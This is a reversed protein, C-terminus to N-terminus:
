TSIDSKFRQNVQYTLQHAQGQTLAHQWPPSLFSKLNFSEPYEFTFTSLRLSQIDKVNIISTMLEQEETFGAVLQINLGQQILGLPMIDAAQHEQQKSDITILHNHYLATSLKEMLESTQPPQESIVKKLWQREKANNTRPFLALRADELRGSLAKIVNNPLLHNIHNIALQLLLAEKTSIPSLMSVVKRYGYPKNRNDQDILKMSALLNLNRQITRIGRKIEKEALQQQIAQATTRHSYPVLSFIEFVTKVHEETSTRKKKTM